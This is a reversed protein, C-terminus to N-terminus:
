VSFLKYMMRFNAFDERVAELLYSYRNKVGNKSCMYMYNAQVYKYVDVEDQTAEVAAEYISIVQKSSFNENNIGLRQKLEPINYLEDLLKDEKQKSEITFLISDIKRGKKIKEYGIKIDTLDNIERTARKLVRTEFNTFRTYEEDAIGLFGRLDAVSVKRVGIKEYQKLLEYVRISYGSRLKLINEVQYRTFNKKLNTIYPLLDKDLYFELEKSDETIIPKNILRIPIFKRKGRDNIKEVKLQRSELRLAVDVLYRYFDKHKTQKKLISVDISYKEFQEKQEERVNAVILSFLKLESNTMFGRYGILNNHKVVLKNEDM